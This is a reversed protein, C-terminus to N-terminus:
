PSLTHADPEPTKHQSLLSGDSENDLSGSPGGCEKVRFLSGSQDRQSESQDATHCRYSRGGATVPIGTAVVSPLPQLQPAESQKGGPHAKLVLPGALVTTTAPGGPGRASGLEPGTVSCCALSCPKPWSNICPFSQPEKPCSRQVSCPLTPAPDSKGSPM